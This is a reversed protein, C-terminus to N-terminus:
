SEKVRKREKDYVPHTVLEGRVHEDGIQVDITRGV